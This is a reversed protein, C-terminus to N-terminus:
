IYTCAFDGFNDILNNSIESRQRMNSINTPKETIRRHFFLKNFYCTRYLINPILHTSNILDATLAVQASNIDGPVKHLIYENTIGCRESFIEMCFSLLFSLLM